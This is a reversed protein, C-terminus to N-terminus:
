SLFSLVVCKLIYVCKCLIYMKFFFLDFTFPYVSFIMSVSIWLFSYHSHYYWVFSVESCPINGSDSLWKMIFFYGIGWAWMWLHSHVYYYSWFMPFLCFHFTIPFFYFPLSAEVCKEWYISLLDTIAFFFVRGFM